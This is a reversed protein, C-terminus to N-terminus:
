EDHLATAPPMRMARFAPIAIGLTIMLAMLVYAVVTCTLFRMTSFYGDICWENLELRAINFDILVALPTVVTLLLLGEGILRRFIDGRTAGNVKRIAIESVRQQARFWFTGFLGLFINLLLFGMGVCSNRIGNTIYVQYNRRIDDFSRVNAVYLNGVRYQRDADAMFNEIFDRDKDAYLRVCWENGDIPDEISAVMTFDHGWGGYDNYKVENLAAGTRHTVTTDRNMYIGEGVIDTVRLSDYMFVNDSLLVEGRRLMEALQEPTEGRTGGYRFVNVFDPTVNRYICYGGCTITDYSFWTGSNSGNYPYSNFGVAVYEVEPRRQIRDFLEQRDARREEATQDAVYDPSTESLTKVGIKYCHEVDFGRPFTYQTIKVYFYDVIFWLVVSVVLLEVALWLNSRWENKIQKLLKREMASM